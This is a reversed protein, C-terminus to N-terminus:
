FSSLRKIKAGRRSNKITCKLNCIMEQKALRKYGKEELDTEKILDTEGTYSIYDM